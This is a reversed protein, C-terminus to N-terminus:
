SVTGLQVIDTRFELPLLGTMASTVIEQGLWAGPVEHIETGM